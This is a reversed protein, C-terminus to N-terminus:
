FSWVAGLSVITDKYRQGSSGQAVFFRASLDLGVDYLSFAVGLDVHHADSVIRYALRLDCGPSSECGDYASDESIAESELALGAVGSVSSTLRGHLYGYEAFLFFAPVLEHDISFYVESSATDFAADRIEAAGSKDYFVFDRYRYGAHTTTKITLRKNLNADLNFAIGERATSNRYQLSTASASLGYWIADFELNPQYSGSLDVSVAVNDLADFTNHDRYTIYGSALWEAHNGVKALYGGGLTLNSIVESNRDGARYSRGPNAQQELAFQMEGYWGSGYPDALAKVSVGHTVIFLLIISLKSKMM